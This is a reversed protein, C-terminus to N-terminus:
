KKEHKKIEKEVEEILKRIEEEEESSLNFDDEKIQEEDYRFSSKLMYEKLKINESKFIKQSTIIEEILGKIKKSLSQYSEKTKCFLTIQYNRNIKNLLAAGHESLLYSIYKLNEVNLKNNTIQFIFRKM